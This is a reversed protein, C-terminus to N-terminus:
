RLIKRKKYLIAEVVLLIYGIIAVLRDTSDGYIMLITASVLIIASTIIWLIKMIKIKQMKDM